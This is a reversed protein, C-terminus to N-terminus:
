ASVITSEMEIHQQSFVYNRLEDGFDKNICVNEIIEKLTIIGAMHLGIIEKPYLGDFNIEYSILM